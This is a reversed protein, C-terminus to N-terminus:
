NIDWFVTNTLKDESQVVSYNEMNYSQESGPYMWRSPPLSQQNSNDVWFNLDIKGLRRIETWSENSQVVNFHLWKQEAILTLKEDMTSAADWSVADMDLYTNISADTPEVPSPSDANNSISRLYQYFGISQEIAEEYHSKAMADQGENLYYEAALLHVEAATM